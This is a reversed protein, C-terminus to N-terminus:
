PIHKPVYSGGSLACLLGSLFCGSFQAYATHFYPAFFILFPSSFHFIHSYVKCKFFFSLELVPWDSCIGDLFM